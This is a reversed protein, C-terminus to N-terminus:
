NSQANCKGINNNTNMKTGNSLIIKRSENHSVVAHAMVISETLTVNSKIQVQQGVIVNKLIAGDEIIANQAIVNGSPASTFGPLELEGRAIKLSANLYDEPTGLDCFYTNDVIGNLQGNQEVMPIYTKKVICGNDPLHEHIQPSLIHMGTFMYLPSITKDGVWVLRKVRGSEDIGVAGLTEANAAPRIVMSAVACSNNHIKLLPKLQPMFMVDGNVAIFTDDGMYPLMNKIGGGTGLITSEHFYEIHVDLQNGDGLYAQLPTPCYHLNVAFETIGQSRLHVIIREINPVGLLPVMPKPIDNTLPRLRTGLGAALIMAKM